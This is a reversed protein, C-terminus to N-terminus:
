KILILKKMDIFNDAKMVYFYVGSSLQSGDFQVTYNGSLKEENVLTKIERGLVDYVFLRIQSIIPVSYNINTIPNFPNPFNQYLLFYEPSQNINNLGSVEDKYFSDSYSWDFFNFLGNTRQLLGDNITIRLRMTYSFDFCDTTVNTLLLTDGRIDFTDASPFHYYRYYNFYPYFITSDQPCRPSQNVTDPFLWGKIKHEGSRFNDNVFEKIFSDYLTDINRSSIIRNVNRIIETGVKHIRLHYTKISDNVNFTISDIYSKSTGDFINIISATDQFFGAPSVSRDFEYVISQGPQYDKLLDFTQPNIQFNLILILLLLKLKNM